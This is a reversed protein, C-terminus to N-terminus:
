YYYNYHLPRAISSIAVNELQLLQLQQRVLQRQKILQYLEEEQQAMYVLNQYRRVDSQYQEIECLQQLLIQRTANNSAVGSNGSRGSASSALPRTALTRVSSSTGYHDLSSEMENLRARAVAHNVGSTAAGYHDISLDMENLRARAVAHNVGSTTAYRITPPPPAAASGINSSGSGSSGNGSSYATSTSNSSSSSSSSVIAAPQKKKNKKKKKKSFSTFREQSSTPIASKSPKRLTNTSTSSSSSSITSKGPSLASVSRKNRPKNQSISSLLLPQKKRKKKRKSLKEDPSVCGSGSPKRQEQKQYHQSVVVMPTAEVLKEKSENELQKNQNVELTPYNNIDVPFDMLRHKLERTIRNQKKKPVKVQVTSKTIEEGARKMKIKTRTVRTTCSRTIRTLNMSPRTRTGAM